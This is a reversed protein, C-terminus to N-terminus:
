GQQRTTGRENREGEVEVSVHLIVAAQSREVDVELLVQAPAPDMLRFAVVSVEACPSTGIEPAGVGLVGLHSAPQPYLTGLPSLPVSTVHRCYVWM